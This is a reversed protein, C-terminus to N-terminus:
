GNTRAASMKERKRAQMEEWIHRGNENSQKILEEDSLHKTEEYLDARLRHLEDIKRIDYTKDM